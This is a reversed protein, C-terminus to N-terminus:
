RIAPRNAGPKAAACDCDAPASWGCTRKADAHRTRPSTVTKDTAPCARLSRSPSATKTPSRTRASVVASATSLLYGEGREIMSPLVARSAYVHAMVHVEWMRQFDENSLELGGRKGYGANSFFLDIKGHDAITKAIMAKIAPEDAVDVKTASVRDPGMESAVREAQAGNLDAAVVHRAGDAVARKVFAEGIGSGGGTVVIVRDKLEM